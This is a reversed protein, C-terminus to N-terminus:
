KERTLINIKGTRISQSSIIIPKKLIFEASDKKKKYVTVTLKKYQKNLKTTSKKFIKINESNEARILAKKYVKDFDFTSIDKVDLNFAKM